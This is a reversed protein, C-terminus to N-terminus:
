PATAPRRCVAPPRMQFNRVWIAIGNYPDGTGQTIAGSTRDIQPVNASSFLRPLFTAANGQANYAWPILNYRLGLDITLRRSAKWKDQAYMELQWYRSWFFSIYQAETYNQFNGLLLDAVVNKTSNLASTNFTVVGQDPTNGSSTDENQRARMTLVGFKLTHAGEVKTFDDRFQFNGNGHKIRDGGSYGTFGSLVLDPGIDVRKLGLPYAAPFTLGLTSRLLPVLDPHGNIRDHNVSVGFYNLTTVSFTTQLSASSLFGPRDRPNPLFGLNNGTTGFPFVINWQDVTLRYSLQNKPTVSYDIRALEERYDTRAVAAAIFNGGPGLFNPLPIPKLLPPGNKSWRLAPVIRDPFAQGTLPDVPATLTSGQFNGVREAATPVVNVTTQGIRTFKWEQSYFFFLKDRSRNLKKPLYIPGGLTGGFDNFHLPQVAQDFFSRADFNNNRVFEFLTGHFDRTGSKTVANIMAGARGGFEAPYSATEMKVEAIADVNPDVMAAGNAGTNLNEAGDVLFYTSTARTGNVAQQGTSLQPNFVNLTTAVVGPALRLLQTYERGNMAIQSLQKDNIVKGVSGSTTDVQQAAAEVQVSETLEGLSLTFALSRNSAADLVVGRQEAAKFGSREVRVIYTGTPLSPFVFTGTESTIASQRFGTASNV